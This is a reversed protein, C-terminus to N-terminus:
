FLALFLSAWRNPTIIPPKAHISSRRTQRSITLSKIRIPKIGLGFANAIGSTQADLQVKKVPKLALKAPLRMLGTTAMVVLQGSAASLVRMVSITTAMMARKMGKTVKVRM